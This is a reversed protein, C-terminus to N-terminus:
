GSAPGSTPEEREAPPGGREWGKLPWHERRLETLTRDLLGRIHEDMEGLRTDDVGELSIEVKAYYLHTDRPNAMQVRATDRQTHFVGNVSLVYYVYSKNRVQGPPYFALRRVAVEEELKPMEMKLTEDGAPTFAGQYFCEEPVHPVQDQKGTYYTLFLGVSGSWPHGEGPLNVRWDAYEDTGLEAITESPLTRSSLFVFPKIVGRDFDRLYKRIVLPKKILVLRDRALHLGLATGGLCVVALVFCWFNWRQRADGNM